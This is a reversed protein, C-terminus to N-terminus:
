LSLNFGIPLIAWFPGIKPGQVPGSRTNSEFVFLGSVHLEIDIFLRTVYTRLCALVVLKTSRGKSAQWQWCADPLHAIHTTGLKPLEYSFTKSATITTIPLAAHLM